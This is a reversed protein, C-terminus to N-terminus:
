YGCTKFTFPFVKAAMTPFPVFPRPHINENAVLLKPVGM